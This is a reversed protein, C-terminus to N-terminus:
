RRSTKVISKAIYTICEIVNVSDTEVDMQTQMKTKELIDASRQHNIDAKKVKM